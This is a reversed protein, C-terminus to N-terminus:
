TEEKITEENIISGKKISKICIIEDDESFEYAMMPGDDDSLTTHIFEVSHDTVDYVIVCVTNDNIKILYKSGIDFCKSKETLVTFLNIVGNKTIIDPRKLISERIGNIQERDDLISLISMDDFMEKNIVTEQAFRNFVNSNIIAEEEKTLPKSAKQNEKSKNIREEIYRKMDSDPSESTVIQHKFFKLEEDLKYYKCRQERCNHTNSHNCSCAYPSGDWDIMVDTCNACTLCTGIKFLCIRHPGFMHQTIYPHVMKKKAITRIKKNFHYHGGKKCFKKTKRENM